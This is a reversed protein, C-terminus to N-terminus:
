QSWALRYFIPSQVAATVSIQNTGADATFSYVTQWNNLDHTSRVTYSRGILLKSLNVTISSNTMALSVREPRANTLGSLFSAAIFAHGKATPHGYQDWFV